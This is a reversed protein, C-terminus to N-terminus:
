LDDGQEMEAVHGGEATRWLDPPRQYGDELDAGCVGVSAGPCTAGSGASFVCLVQVAADAAQFTFGTLFM